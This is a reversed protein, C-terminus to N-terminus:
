FIGLTFLRRNLIYAFIPGIKDGQYSGVGHKTQFISDRLFPQGNVKIKYKKISEPQAKDNDIYIM